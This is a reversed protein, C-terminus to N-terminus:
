RTEARIEEIKPARPTTHLFPPTSHDPGMEFDIVSAPNLKAQTRVAVKTQPIPSLDVPPTAPPPSLDEQLTRSRRHLPLEPEPADEPAPRRFPISPLTFFAHACGGAHRPRQISSM